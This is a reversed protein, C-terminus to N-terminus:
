LCNKQQALIQRAILASHEATLHVGDMTRTGGPVALHLWCYRSPPFARAVERRMMTDAPSNTLGPDIPMEFFGVRIGKAQLSAVMQATRELNRRFLAADPPRSKFRQQEQYFARAAQPTLVAETQTQHTLTALGRWLLNAPDYGTRFVRLHKRLFREPFRLQAQVAEQDLPRELLNSEILVLGPKEGSREVMALGTLASGGTLGINAVEPELVETPLRFTLSSGVLVTRPPAALFGQMRMMNTDVQNQVVPVKFPAFQVFAAYAAFSLAATVAIPLLPRQM